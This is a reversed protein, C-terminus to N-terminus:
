VLIKAGHCNARHSARVNKPTEDDEFSSPNGDEDKRGEDNKCLKALKNPLTSTELFAGTDSPEGGFGRKEEGGDGNGIGDFTSQVEIGEPGDSFTATGDDVDWVVGTSARQFIMAFREHVPVFQLKFGNDGGAYVAM